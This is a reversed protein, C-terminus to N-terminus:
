NDARNYNNKMQKSAELLVNNLCKITERKGMEALKENAEDILTFDKAAKMKKIYESAMGGYVKEYDSVSEGSDTATKYFERLYKIDADNDIDSETLTNGNIASTACKLYALYSEGGLQTKFAEAHKEVCKREEKFEEYSAANRIASGHKGGMSLAQHFGNQDDLKIEEDSGCSVMFLAVAAVLFFRKM